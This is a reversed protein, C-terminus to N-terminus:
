IIIIWYLLIIVKSIDNHPKCTGQSMDGNYVDYLSYILIITLVVVNIFLLTSKNFSIGQMVTSANLIFLNFM